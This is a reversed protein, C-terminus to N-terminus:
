RRTDCAAPRAPWPAIRRRARRRRGAAGLRRGSHASTGCCGAAAPGSRPLALVTLARCRSSGAPATTGGRWTAVALGAWRDATGPLGLDVHGSRRGDAGIV